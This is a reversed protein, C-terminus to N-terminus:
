VQIKTITSRFGSKFKLRRQTKEKATKNLKPLGAFIKSFGAISEKKLPPLFVIHVQLYALFIQTKNSPTHRILVHQTTETEKQPLKPLFFM